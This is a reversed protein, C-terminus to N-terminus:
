SEVSNSPHRGGVVDLVGGETVRRGVACWWVTVVPIVAPATVAKCSDATTTKGATLEPLCIRSKVEEQDSQAM